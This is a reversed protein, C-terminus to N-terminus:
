SAPTVRKLVILEDGRLWSLQKQKDSPNIVVEGHSRRWGILLGLGLGVLHDSLDGFSYSMGTAFAAARQKPVAGSPVAGVPVAEEIRVSQIAYGSEPDLLMQVTTWSTSSHAALSLATTEIYNRHFVVSQVANSPGAGDAGARLVGAPAPAPAAAKEAVAEAVV